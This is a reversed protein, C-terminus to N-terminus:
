TQIMIHKELKLGVWTAKGFHIKELSHSLSVSLSLACLSCAALTKDVFITFQSVKHAYTEIFKLTFTRFTKDISACNM